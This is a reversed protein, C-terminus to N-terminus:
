ELEKGDKLYNWNISFSPMHFTLFPKYATMDPLWSAYAATKIANERGLKVGSPHYLKLIAAVHSMSEHRGTYYLADRLVMEVSRTYDVPLLEDRARVRDLDLHEKYRRFKCMRCDATMCSVDSPTM